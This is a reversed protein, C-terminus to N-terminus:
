RLRSCRQELQQIFWERDPPSIYILGGFISSSTYIIEIRNLSLAMSSLPNRSLRISKIADYPIRAVFPGSRCYLYADKLEYYTGFYIWLMFVLAPLSLLLVRVREGAPAIALMSLLMAITLWILLGLWWDVASRIRM